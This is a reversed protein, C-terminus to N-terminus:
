GASQGLETDEVYRLPLDVETHGPKLYGFPSLTDNQLWSLAVVAVASGLMLFQGHNSSRHYRTM